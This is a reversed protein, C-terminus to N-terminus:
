QVDSIWMTTGDYWLDGYDENSDLKNKYVEEEDTDREKTTMDYAYIHRDIEDLVFMTTEDSWIGAPYDNGAAVLTNFDEAPKRLKTAM